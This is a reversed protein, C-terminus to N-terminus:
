EAAAQAFTNSSPGVIWATLVPLIVLSSLFYLHYWPPFKPWLNIHVPIFAALMVIGFALATWRLPRGVREVVLAAIVLCVTSLALRALMMSIDFGYSPEAAVYAPWMRLGIGGVSVLALWLVMGVIVGLFVRFINVWM